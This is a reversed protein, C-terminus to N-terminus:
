VGDSAMLHWGPQDVFWAKFGHLRELCSAMDEIFATQQMQICTNGQKAIFGKREILEGDVLAFEGWHDLYM